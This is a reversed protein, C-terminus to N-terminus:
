AVLRQLVHVQFEHGPLRAAERSGVEGVDAVLGRDEGAALMAVHNQVLVEFGRELTHHRPHLRAAHDVVVLLLDHGVVLGPV